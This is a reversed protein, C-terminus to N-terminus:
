LFPLLGKPKCLFKSYDPNLPDGAPQCSYGEPCKPNDSSCEPPFIKYWFLYVFLSLIIITGLTIIKKKVLM